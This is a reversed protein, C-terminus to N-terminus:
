GIFAQVKLDAQELDILKKLYSLIRFVKFPVIIFYTYLKLM